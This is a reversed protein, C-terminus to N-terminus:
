SSSAGSDGSQSELRLLHQVEEALSELLFTLLLLSGATIRPILNM